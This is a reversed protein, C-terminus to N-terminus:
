AAKKRHLRTNERIDAAISKLEKSSYRRRGTPNGNRTTVKLNSRQNNLGDGDGHVVAKGKRAKVIVRHMLFTECRRVGNRLETIKRAAYVKNRTKFLGWNYKSLKIYDVDSVFAFLGLGVPIKKM